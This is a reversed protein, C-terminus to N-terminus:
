KCFENVFTIEKPIRKQGKWFYKRDSKSLKSNWVGWDPLAQANLPLCLVVHEFFMLRFRPKM